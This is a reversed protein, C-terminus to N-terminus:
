HSLSDSKLAPQDAVAVRLEEGILLPYVVRSVVQNGKLVEHFGPMISKREPRRHEFRTEIALGVQSDTREAIIFGKVAESGILQHTPIPVEEHLEHSARPVDNTHPNEQNQM